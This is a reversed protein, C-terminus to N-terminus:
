AFSQNIGVIKGFCLYISIPVTYFGARGRSEPRALGPRAPGTNLSLRIVKPPTFWIPKNRSRSDTITKLAQM